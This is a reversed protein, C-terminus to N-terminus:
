EHPVLSPSVRHNLVAQIWSAISGDLRAFYDLPTVLFGRRLVSNIGVVEFGRGDNLARYVPGGSDGECLHSRHSPDLDPYATEFTFRGVAVVKKWAATLQGFEGGGDTICGYGGVLVADGARVPQFSLSAAPMSLPETVEIIAVDTLGLLKKSSFGYKQRSRADDLNLDVPWTPSLYIARISHPEHIENERDTYPYFLEHMELLGDRTWGTVCHAATLIQTASVVVGSCFNDGGIELAISAPLAGPPVPGGGVYAISAIPSLIVTLALLSNRFSWHSMM